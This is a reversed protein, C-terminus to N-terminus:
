SSVPSVLPSSPPRRACGPGRVRSERVKGRVFVRVRTEGEVDIGRRVPGGGPWEGVKGWEDKFFDGMGNSM